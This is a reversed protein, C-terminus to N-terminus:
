SSGLWEKLVAETHEGLAPAHQSLAPQVGDFRLPTGATTFKTQDSDVMTHLMGRAALHTDAAVDAITRIPAAPIGASELLALWHGSPQLRLCDNLKAELYKVNTTRLLNTQLQPDDVLQPSGIVQCLGNWLGDNGAAIVIQHDATDFAQFPTISPHRTGLPEPIQGTVEYRSLANELAAVTCDLMALDMDTGRGTAERERLAALIGITTFLGSLLDSISTGVRVPHQADFGTISMLGSLAQIIIDYAAKQGHEGARGFGSVSASILRPNIQKLQQPSFGFRDMTGPRFNEVLVDARSVLKSFTDADEPNGLDLVVSRKGRNISGFYASLGGPLFPGFQRADDGSGPREVKVVDAGLDALIMTCFPGALVRTLDLVRVGSLPKTGAPSPSQHPSPPTSM